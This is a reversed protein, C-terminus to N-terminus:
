NFDSERVAPNGTMNNCYVKALSQVLKLKYEGDQASPLLAQVDACSEPVVGRLVETM